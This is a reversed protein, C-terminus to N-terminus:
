QINISLLQNNRNVEIRWRREESELASEVDAVFRIGIDNIRELVDGPRFRIRSARSGGPVELLIVGSRSKNLGLEHAFRPSLNGIVVGTLPTGPPLRTINRPPNEPLRTLPGSLAADKKLSSATSLSRAVRFGAFPDRNSHRVDAGKPCM